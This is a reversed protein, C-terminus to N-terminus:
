LKQLQLGIVRYLNGVRYFTVITIQL